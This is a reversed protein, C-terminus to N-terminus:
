HIMALFEQESLIPIGLKEAKSLKAPGINEGALLYDTKGSVSGTYKGGNKEILSKLEDRSYQQFTGSIVFTKGELKDSRSKLEDEDVQFHLGATRLRSILELNEPKAFYEKLSHAIRDGIEPVAKIADPSASMLNEITLFHRALTQAVTEGVYRIGLAFIVRHFPRKKSNEISEIINEASKEGLRELPTLQEKRLRYLDSVEHIIGHTFLLNITEEGLGDIDMAKRSIFHELKGKIQPPCGTQNPCYHNAEGEYRILKSGCEPCTSPFIVPIAAPSRKERNVGVIKPIIEGGKEVYVADGLQLDMLRIQDENHLSARKVTTGALFVPELNAVPTIAGTRGVQYDISLLQTEVQDAKYKYSIAWRPTKATFGLQRQQAISEVKIVVGDIDFPLTERKKDWADIFQLVHEITNCREMYISIKFGWEKALLLNEYHSDSPLNEGLLHYLYCDLPRKAVLSSNMMKITGAAANRPNAFPNEGKEEREKNLRTFGEKSIFIEGRIEFEGPYHDGVLHLPISKITRVNASVDDGMIGDGRTVARLLTGNRYTLGIATGDYKLECIYRFNDGITKRIRQDFDRLDDSSYTNGLSLMPYKHEVQEFELNIDKGVRQSPSNSDIFQPFEKELTILNQMLQDYEFDSIVPESLVYYNHNHKEIEIRLNRIREEATKSDMDM